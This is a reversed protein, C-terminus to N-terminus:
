VLEPELGIPGFNAKVGTGDNYGMASMLLYVLGALGFSSGWILPTKSKLKNTKDSMVIVGQQGHVM